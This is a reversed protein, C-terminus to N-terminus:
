APRGHAGGATRTTMTTWDVQIHATDAETHAREYDADGLYWLPCGKGDNRFRRGSAEFTFSAGIAKPAGPYDIRDALRRLWWGARARIGKRRTSM